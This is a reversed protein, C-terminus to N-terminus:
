LDPVNARLGDSTVAEGWLASLRRPKRRAAEAVTPANAAGESPGNAAAGPLAFFDAM